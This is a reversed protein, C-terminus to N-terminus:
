HPFCVETNPTKPLEFNSQQFTFRVKIPGEKAELRQKADIIFKSMLGYRLEKNIETGSLSITM